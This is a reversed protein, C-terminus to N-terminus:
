ELDPDNQMAYFITQILANWLAEKGDYKWANFWVTKQGTKRLRDQIMTMLTTKGSGWEGFLGLAFPPEADTVIKALLDASNSFGLADVTAPNDSLLPMSSTGTSRPVTISPQICNWGLYRDWPPGSGSGPPVWADMRTM